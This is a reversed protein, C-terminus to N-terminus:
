KIPAPVACLADGKPGHGIAHNMKGTKVYKDIMDKFGIAEFWEKVVEDKHSYAIITFGDCAIQDSLRRFFLTVPLAIKKFGKETAAFHTRWTTENVPEMFGVACPEDDKYFAFTCPMDIMAEFLPKAGPHGKGWLDRFVADINEQTLCQIIM